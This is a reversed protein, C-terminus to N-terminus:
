VNTNPATSAFPAMTTPEDAGMANIPLMRCRCYCIYIYIDLLILLTNRGCVPFPFRGGDLVRVM